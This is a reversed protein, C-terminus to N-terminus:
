DAARLHKVIDFTLIVGDLENANVIYARTGHSLVQLRPIVEHSYGMYRLISNISARAKLNFILEKRLNDKIPVIIDFTDSM